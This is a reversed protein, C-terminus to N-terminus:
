KLMQRQSGGPRRVSRGLLFTGPPGTQGQRYTVIHIGDTPSRSVKTPRADSGLSEVDSLSLTSNCFLQECPRDAAGSSLPLCQFMVVDDQHDTEVRCVVAQEVFLLLNNLPSKLGVIL